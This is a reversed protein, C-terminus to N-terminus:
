NKKLLQRLIGIAEKFTHEEMYYAEIKELKQM